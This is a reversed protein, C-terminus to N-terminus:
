PVYKTVDKGLKQLNRISSSSIHSFEDSCPIYVYKLDNKFDNLFKRQVNEYDLDQWNRIGKVITVDYEMSEFQEVLDSLMGSFEVVEFNFNTDISKVNFESIKDSKDPNIGKCLIVKDFIKNAENLIHIHGKHIPNFSGPYIGVKLIRGTMYQQYANMNQQNQTGFTLKYILKFHGDLFHSYPLFSYEKYIKNGYDILQRVNGNFLIDRDYSNFISSLRDSGFINKTGLIIQEISESLITFPIYERMLKVSMEENDNKTPDYVIDHFYAAITLIEKEVSLLENNSNIKSIISEVHDWVHFHRHSESYRSKVKQLVEDPIYM